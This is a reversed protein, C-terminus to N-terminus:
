VMVNQLAKLKFCLCVRLFVNSENSLDKNKHLKWSPASFLNLIQGIESFM